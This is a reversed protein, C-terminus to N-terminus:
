YIIFILILIHLFSNNRLKKTETKIFKWFDKAAKEKKTTLLLVSPFQKIFYKGDITKLKNWHFIFDSNFIDFGQKHKRLYKMCTKAVFFRVREDKKTRLSMISGDRKTYCYVALADDLLIEKATCGLQISFFTDNRCITEQFKIRNKEILERKVFRGWVVGTDYRIIDPNNQKKAAKIREGMSFWVNEILLSQLRTTCLLEANDSLVSNTAFCIMDADNDVYKDLAFEFDPNFFDDADAFILWKGKAQKLGINRAWGAGRGCEDEVVIIQIDTRKPISAL